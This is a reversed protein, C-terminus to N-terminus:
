QKKDKLNDTSDKGAKLSEPSRLTGWFMDCLTLM